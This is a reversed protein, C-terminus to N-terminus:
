YAKRIYTVNGHNSPSADQISQILNTPTNPHAITDYEDEIPCVEWIGLLLLSILLEDQYVASLDQFVVNILRTTEIYESIALRKYSSRRPDLSIFSYSLALAAKRLVSTAPSNSYAAELSDTWYGRLM